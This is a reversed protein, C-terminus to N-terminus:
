YDNVEYLCETGDDAAGATGCDRLGETMMYKM